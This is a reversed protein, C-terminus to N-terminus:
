LSRLPNGFPTCVVPRDGSVLFAAGLAQNSSRRRFGIRMKRRPARKIAKSICSSMTDRMSRNAAANLGTRFFGAGM